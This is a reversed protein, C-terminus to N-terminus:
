PKRGGGLMRDLAAFVLESAPRARRWGGIMTRMATERADPKHPDAFGPSAGARTGAAHSLWALYDAKTEDSEDVALRQISLEQLLRPEQGPELLEMRIRLVM